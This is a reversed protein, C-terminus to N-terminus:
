TCVIINDLLKGLVSSLAVARYNDSNRADVRPGKPIPVLISVRFDEPAVGHINLCYHLMIIYYILVMFMVTQCLAM